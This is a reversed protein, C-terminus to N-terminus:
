STETSIIDRPVIPFITPQCPEWHEKSTVTLLKAGCQTCYKDDIELYDRKRKSHGNPCIAESDYIKVAFEVKALLELVHEFVDNPTMPIPKCKKPRELDRELEIMEWFCRFSEALHMEDSM